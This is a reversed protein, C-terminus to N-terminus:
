SPYKRVDSTRTGTGLQSQAIALESEIIAATPLFDQPENANAAAAAAATSASAFVAALVIPHFSKMTIPPISISLPNNSTLHSTSTSILSHQSFTTCTHCKRRAPMWLFVRINKTRTDSFTVYNLFNQARWVRACGTRHITLVYQITNYQITGLYRYVMLYRLGTSCTECM